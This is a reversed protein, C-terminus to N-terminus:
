KIGIIVFATRGDLYKVERYYSFDSPSGRDETPIKEPPTAILLGSTRKDQAWNVERFEIGAAGSVLGVDGFKSPIFVEKAMKQYQGPPYKDYFLFFIYPQAYSQQVVVKEYNEKQNNIEQVLQKYGYQWEQSNAKPNHVWYQDLWYLYNGFYLLSLFVFALPFFKGLRKRIQEWLLLAGLSIIIVLPAVMNLSRVSNVEDRSLASPLPSLLLWGWLFLAAPHKGFRSLVVLGLSLLIGDLILVKGAHPVGHRPNGDGKFLLFSPSYHNLWRGLIARTFELPQSHYLFFTPSSTTEGAQSLFAQTDEQRRPYSFISYVELRGVKGSFISFLIPLSVVLGALIALSIKGRPIALFEKRYFLALLGVVILSSLKAGQYVLLTTAFLVASWDIWQPKDKVARLFLYTGALVLTLSVQAEWAGRSFQVHWPSIALFFSATIALKKGDIGLKKDGFLQLVVLYVLWVGLVGLLAGPLRVAPETLGLAAMFPVTLYVYLGPKWDGFSKFVLPLLQGHEDRGTKLISYANYGLAAEDNTLHPPNASLSWLRLLAALLLIAVLFKHRLVLLKIKSIM